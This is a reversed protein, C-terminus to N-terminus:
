LMGNLVIAQIFTAFGISSMAFSAKSLYTSVMEVCAYNNRNCAILLPTYGGVDQYEIYTKVDAAASVLQRIIDQLCWDNLICAHCALFLHARSTGNCPQLTRTTLM